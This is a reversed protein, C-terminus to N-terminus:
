QILYLHEPANRQLWDRLFLRAEVQEHATADRGVVQVHSSASQFYERLFQPYSKALPEFSFQAMFLERWPQLHALMEPAHNHTDVHNLIWRTGKPLEVTIAVANMLDHLERWLPFIPDFFQTQGEDNKRSWEWSLRVESDLDRWQKQLWDYIDASPKDTADFPFESPYMELWMDLSNSWHYNSGRAILPEGACYFLRGCSHANGDGTAERVLEGLAKSNIRKKRRHLATKAYTVVYNIGTAHARFFASAEGSSLELWRASVMTQAGQWEISGFEIPVSWNAIDADPPIEWPELEFLMALTQGIRVRISMARAM